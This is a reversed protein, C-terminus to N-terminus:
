IAAVNSWYILFYKKNQLNEKWWHWADDLANNRDENCTMLFDMGSVVLPKSTIEM